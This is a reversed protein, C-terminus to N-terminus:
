IYDRETYSLSLLQAPSAGFLRRTVSSGCWVILLSCIRWWLRRTVLFVGLNVAKQRWVSCSHHYSCLNDLWHVYVYFSFAHLANKVVFMHHERNLWYKNMNISQWFESKEWKKNHEKLSRENIGSPSIQEEAHKCLRCMKLIGTKVSIISRDPTFSQWTFSILCTLLAVFESQACYVGRM